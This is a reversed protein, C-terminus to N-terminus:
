VPKIAQMLRKLVVNLCNPDFRWGETFGLAYACAESCFDDKKGHGLIGLVFAADGLFDYGKGENATFWDIAAQEDLGTLDMMEWQTTDTFDISGPTTFRVGTGPVSSASRGDSFVLECHTFRGHTDARIAWDLIAGLGPSTGVFFAAKFTM